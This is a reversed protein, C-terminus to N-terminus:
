TVEIGAAAAPASGVLSHLATFLHRPAFCAAGATLMTSALPRRRTMASEPASLMIIKRLGRPQARNARLIHWMNEAYHATLIKGKRHIRSYYGCSIRLICM